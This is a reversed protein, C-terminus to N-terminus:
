NSSKENPKVEGKIVLYFQSPVTNAVINVNKEFKGVKGSSNFQVEIASEEGPALPEKPYKPVTCGCDASASQIILGSKGTNRFKFKCTVVEGDILNGFDHINEEFTMIPAIAAPDISSDAASVPNTVLDGSARKPNQNCSLILFLFLCGLIHKNIKM